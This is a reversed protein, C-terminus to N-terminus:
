PPSGSSRGRRSHAACSSAAQYLLSWLTPDSTKWIIRALGAQGAEKGGTSPGGLGGSVVSLNDAEPWLTVARRTRRTGRSMERAELNRKEPLTDLVPVPYPWLPERRAPGERRPSAREGRQNNGGGIGSAGM